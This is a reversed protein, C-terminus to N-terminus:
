RGLSQHDNTSSATASSETEGATSRRAPRSSASDASAKASTPRGRQQTGAAVGTRAAADAPASPPRGPPSCGAAGCRAHARGCCWLGPRPCAAERPQDAAMGDRGVQDDDEPQDPGAQADGPQGPVADCRLAQIQDQGRHREDDEETSGDQDRGHDAAPGADAPQQGADHVPADAYATPQEHCPCQRRQGQGDGPGGAGQVARGLAPQPHAHRIQHGSQHASRQEGVDPLFGGPRSEDLLAQHVTV